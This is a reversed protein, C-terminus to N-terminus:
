RPSEDGKDACTLPHPYTFPKYGPMPKTYYDRDLQIHNASRGPIVPQVPQGNLTNNWVWVNGIQEAIPYPASWDIKSDFDLTLSVGTKYDRITNNFIVGGGGRILIATSGGVPKEILNEYVEVWQTGHKSGYGPGHADVAQSNDNGHVYNHRFVYHAGGNSAVAHRSGILECDEIFVADQSGYKFTDRWTGTGMVVVGYGVNNIAKKFNNVFLCHDVVGRANGRTNIAAAGFREFRCQTIRFDVVNDVSVASDWSASAPDLMGVFNIGSVRSRLGNTGDIKLITASSKPDTQAGRFMKTQQWGAGIINVGGPVVLTGVAEAEGAPVLVTGPGGLSDVAGQIDAISPSAAAVGAPAAHGNAAIFMVLAICFGTSVQVFHM